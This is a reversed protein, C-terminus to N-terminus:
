SWTEAANVVEIVRWSLPADARRIETPRRPLVGEHELFAPFEQM